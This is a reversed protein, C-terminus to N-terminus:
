LETEWLGQCQVEEFPRSVQTQINALIAKNDLPVNHESAPNMEDDSLSEGSLHILSNTRAM